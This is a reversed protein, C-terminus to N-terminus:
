SSGLKEHTFTRGSYFFPFLYTHFVSGVSGLEVRSRVSFISLLRDSSVKDAM